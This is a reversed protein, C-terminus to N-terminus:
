ILRDSLPPATWVQTQESGLEMVTIDTPITCDAIGVALAIAILPSPPMALGTAKHLLEALREPSFSAKLRQLKDYDSEQLNNLRKLSDSLTAKCEILLVVENNHATVDVEDRDGKLSGSLDRRPLRCRLFRIDTGSPPCACVIVWNKETLYEILRLYVQFEVVKKRM